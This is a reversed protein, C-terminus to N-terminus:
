FLPSVTAIANARRDRCGRAGDVVVMQRAARQAAIQQGLRHLGRLLWHQM